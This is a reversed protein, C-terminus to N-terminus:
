RAAPVVELDLGQARLPEALREADGVVVLTLQDVDVAEVYAATASEPTVAGLDALSQDVYDEGLDALVQVGAQDAVGEATAFRLPSVGVYYAVADTVEEATFPRGSVQLLDRAYALADPVVETRFSGQLAFWGARRLPTFGFRVGYTYGKEERLAANLRSLFAGGVAYGAVTLDAWAPHRRDVGFSGLRIDAQVAGPRDLLISRPAAAAPAERQLARQGEVRWGGFAQEAVEGPDSRFDGALVLVAGRPGFWERHFTGVQEPGISAVTEADGGSMRSARCASDFVMSRFEISALQASHARAQDIEALRLQVHRAIDEEALAPATVAEAFLPLATEIRSTPVDLIAQFGDLSVDIGFGAGETELVEAFQEGPHRLTGEDLVRATVTVVGEHAREEAELGVDLILHASLVHQGPLHYVVLEIGNSLRRREPRPFHWTSPPGVVPQPLFDTV